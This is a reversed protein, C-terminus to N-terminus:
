PHTSPHVSLHVSLSHISPYNSPYIISLPPWLELAWPHTSPHIPPQMISLPPFLGLTWLHISPYHNSPHTSAHHIFTSVAWTDMIPYTSPYAAHHGKVGHVIVWGLFPTFSQCLSGCPHVKSVVITVSFLWVCFVGHKLIGNIPFTWFFSVWLFSFQSSELPLLFPFLAYSSKPSLPEQQSSPFNWFRPLPRQSSPCRKLAPFAGSGLSTIATCCQAVPNEVKNKYYTFQVGTLFLLPFFQWPPLPSAPCRHVCLVSNCLSPWWTWSLSWLVHAPARRSQRGCSEGQLIGNEHYSFGM